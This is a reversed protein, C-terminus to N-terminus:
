CRPPLSRISTWINSSPELRYGLIPELRSSLRDPAEYYIPDNPPKFDYRLGTSMSLVHRLEINQKDALDTRLAPRWTSLM